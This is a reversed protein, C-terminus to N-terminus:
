GPWDLAEALGMSVRLEAVRRGIGWSDWLRFPV